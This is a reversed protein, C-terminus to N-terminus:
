QLLSELGSSTDLVRGYTSVAGASGFHFNVYLTVGVILVVWAV